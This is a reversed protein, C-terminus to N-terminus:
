FDLAVDVDRPDGEFGVVEGKATRYRRQGEETQEVASRDHRSTTAFARRLHLHCLRTRRALVRTVEPWDTM